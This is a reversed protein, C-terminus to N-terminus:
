SHPVEEKVISSVSPDDGSTGLMGPPPAHTGSSSRFYLVSVPGSLPSKKKKAKKNNRGVREM